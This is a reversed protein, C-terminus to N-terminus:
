VNQIDWKSPLPITMQKKRFFTSPAFTHNRGRSLALIGAWWSFTSSSIIRTKATSLLKLTEFPSLEQNIFIIEQRSLDFELGIGDILSQSYEPDDTFIFIQRSNEFNIRKLIRVYYDVGLNVYLENGKFDGGRIHIALSRTLEPAFDHKDFLLEEFNGLKLPFDINQDISQYYGFHNLQILNLFSKHLVNPRDEFIVTPLLNKHALSHFVRSRSHRSKTVTFNMLEMPLELSRPALASTDLIVELGKNKLEQAFRLQFLQNGLGGTM